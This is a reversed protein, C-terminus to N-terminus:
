RTRALFQSFSLGQSRRPKQGVRSEVRGVPPDLRGVRPNCGGSRTKLRGTGLWGAWVVRGAQQM